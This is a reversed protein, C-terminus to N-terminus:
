DHSVSGVMRRDRDFKLMEVLFGDHQGLTGFLANPLIRVARVLGDSCGILVTDEDVKLLADISQPHGPYRNSIDGWRGFSFLCLTGDQIGCLVKNSRKM